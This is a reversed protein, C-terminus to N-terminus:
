AAVGDLRHLTCGAIRWSGDDMRRMRYLALTPLGDPGVVLVAQLWVGEASLLDRFEVSRPRYVPRYGSRVAAIFRDPSGFLRQISPAAHAFAAPGDDRKFAAMQDRIVREIAVRDPVPLTEAASPPTGVAAGFLVWVLFVRFM